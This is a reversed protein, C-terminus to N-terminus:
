WEPARVMARRLQGDKWWSMKSFVLQGDKWWSMKSFVIHQLLLVKHTPPPPIDLKKEPPNPTKCTPIDLNTWCVLWRGSFFSSLDYDPPLASKKTAKKLPGWWLEKLQDDKWWSVSWTWSLFSLLGLDFAFVLTAMREDLCRPLLCDKCSSQGTSCWRVKMNALPHTNLKKKM